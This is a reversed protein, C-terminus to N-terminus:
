PLVYVTLPDSPVGNAVVELLGLIGQPVNPCDYNTSVLNNGTAVGMSSHNHTRCYYVNWTELDTIRVLPYNTAMQADDGFMAGQSMGNFRYGLIYNTQSNHIPNACNACHTFIRPAWTPDHGPAPTYIEVRTHGDTYMVQGTPLVLLQADQSRATAANLPSHVTVFSGGRYNAALTFEYFTSPTGFGVSVDVLVNGNPLLAAPGDAIGLGNSNQYPFDPGETWTFYDPDSTSTHYLATHAARSPTFSAGTAFVTGDPRLVAPGIECGGYHGCDWLPVITSGAPSWFGFPPPFYRESTRGDTLPFFANVVLVSGSPSDQMGPLLTWGAENNYEAQYLGTPTWTLNTPDLLAEDTTCCNGLMFTGDPLVVSPADSVTAWGPPPQVPTWQGMPPSVTPDFIAGKTTRGGGCNFEGGEVIVRGDPLM